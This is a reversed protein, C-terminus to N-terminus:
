GRINVFGLHKETAERLAKSDGYPVLTVGDQEDLGCAATAVIPVGAALAQLLRQPRSELLSPQVVCAVNELWDGAAHQKRVGQWFDPNEINSGTLVIEWHCQRAVERLEWAGHRAATPASLAVRQCVPKPRPVALSQPLKWGLRVCRDSFLKAIEAHPTVLCNAAQLAAAEARVLHQPARFEALTQREPFQALANELRQHIVQLPLRTMLVDFSRGGLHGEQWLFPLLSQSVVLHQVDPTLVGALYLALQQSVALQAALRRAGHQHLRRSQLGRWLQLHRATLVRGEEPSPWLYRGHLAPAALADAPQISQSVYDHFEPWVEDLLFATAPRASQPTGFYKSAPAHHFCSTQECTACHHSEVDIRQRSDLLQALPILSVTTAPPSQSRLRVILEERSLLVELCLELQARWRLDIYNWAVTADRGVAAASGPIIQSHGHREVIELGGKLAVDYLANSLQCLGGGVAPMLCGERLLRGTTYGRATTAQGVQKWFSFIAGAEVRTGNLRRAACRLNQVKGLQLAYEIANNEDWLPSRSEALIHPFDAADTVPHRHLGTGWDLLARRGQLVAAKARFVVASKRTPVAHAM